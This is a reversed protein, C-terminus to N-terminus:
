ASLSHLHELMPELAATREKLRVELAENTQQLAAIVREQRTIDTAVGELRTPQGADDYIVQLRERLWRIEGSPRVIRYELDGSGTELVKQRQTWVHPRDEPHIIDLWLSQHKFFEYRPRGYIYEAAPNLDILEFRELTASWVVDELSNIIHNLRQECTNLLAVLKPDTSQAAQPQCVARHAQQDSTIDQCLGTLKVPDPSGDSSVEGESRLWRIRGDLTNIPFEITYNAKQRIARAIARTVLRREPFCIQKLLSKYTGKLTGPALGWLAEFNESWAIQGTRLNWEWMGSKTAQLALKLRTDSQDLYQM